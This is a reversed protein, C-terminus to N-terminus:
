STWRLPEEDDLSEPLEDPAVRGVLVRLHELEARYRDAKERAAALERLVDFSKRAQEGEHRRAVFEEVIPGSEGGSIARLMVVAEAATTALPRIQAALPHLKGVGGHLYALTSSLSRHGIEAQVETVQFGAGVAHRIWAHRFAHPTIEEPARVGSAAVVRHFIRSLRNHDLAGPPGHRWKTPTAFLPGHPGLDAGRPAVARRWECSDKVAEVTPRPLPRVAHQGGRGVVHLVPGGDADPRFDRVRARQLEIGRCGVDAFVRFLAYVPPSEGAAAALIKSIEEPTLRREDGRSERRPSPLPRAFNASVLGSAIMVDYFNTLASLRQATISASPPKTGSGPILSASVKARSAFREIDQTTPFLPDVRPSRTNCYAFWDRVHRRQRNITDPLLRTTRSQLASVFHAVLKEPDAADLLASLSAPPQTSVAAGERISRNNIIM